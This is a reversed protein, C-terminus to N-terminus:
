NVQEQEEARQVRILRANADADTLRFPKELYVIEPAFRGVSPLQVGLRYALAIRVLAALPGAGQLLSFPMNAKKMAEKFSSLEPHDSSIVLGQGNPMAMTLRYIWGYRRGREGEFLADGPLLEEDGTPLYEGPLDNGGMVRSPAPLPKTKRNLKAWQQGRTSCISVSVSKVDSM